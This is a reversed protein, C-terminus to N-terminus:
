CYIFKKNCVGAQAFYSKCAGLGIAVPMIQNVPVFATPGLAHHKYILYQVYLSTIVNYVPVQVNYCLLIAMNYAGIDKGLGSFSAINLVAVFKSMPQKICCTM